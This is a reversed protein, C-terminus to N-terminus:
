IFIVLYRSGLDKRDQALGFATHWHSFKATFMAHHWQGRM